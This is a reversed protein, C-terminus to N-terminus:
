PPSRSEEQKVAALEGCAYLFGGDGIGGGPRARSRPASARPSPCGLTGWRLPYTLKRPAPTRHFGGLWYGPICMDCVLVADDPLAAEIAELFASAEPDEAAVRARVARNLDRVRRRLSDLGGREGLREALM